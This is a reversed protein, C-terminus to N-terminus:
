CSFYAQRACVPSVKRKTKHMSTIVRMAANAAKRSQCLALVKECKANLFTAREFNKHRLLLKELAVVSAKLNGAALAVNLARAQTNNNMIKKKLSVCKVFVLFLDRFTAVFFTVLYRGRLHAVFHVSFFCACVSRSM